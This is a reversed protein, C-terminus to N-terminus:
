GGFLERGGSNTLLTSAAGRQDMLSEYLPKRQRQTSGLITVLGHQAQQRQFTQLFDNM